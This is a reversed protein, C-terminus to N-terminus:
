SWSIHFLTKNIGPQGPRKTHNSPLSPVPVERWNVKHCLHHFVIPFRCSTGQILKSPTTLLWLWHQSLKLYQLLVDSSLNTNFSLRQHDSIFTLLSQFSLAREKQWLLIRHMKFFQMQLMNM